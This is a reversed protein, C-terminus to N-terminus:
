ESTFYLYRHKCQSKNETWGWDRRSKHKTKKAREESYWYRGGLYNNQEVVLTRIGLRALDRSAMLGAPGTCINIVDCNAYEDITGNFMM